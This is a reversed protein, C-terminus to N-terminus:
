TISGGTLLIVQGNIWESEPGALFAVVRSVDEPVGVRKLPSFNALGQDIAEMSWSPDAGPVYHWANDTYMDTKIGGPAIANVTIQKKGCDASFSRTFGEVAAKSGAYLAHNRIGSMTAAVSSTLIVRGGKACHRLAHQAVFFQARTNLGFVMDYIEETVDEEECFTEMGSNSVVIDVRGFHALTENFLKSVESVKSVDAQVAIAKSGAAEIEAVVKKAANASKAYNVVVLAGRRGLEVAIGAGLGRGSGTILAVKGDLRTTNQLMTM